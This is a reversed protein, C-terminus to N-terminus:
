CGNSSPFSFVRRPLPPHSTNVLLTNITSTNEVNLPARLYFQQNIM